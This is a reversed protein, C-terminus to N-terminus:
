NVSGPTTTVMNPDIGLSFLARDWLTETEFPFAFEPDWPLVFWSGESM